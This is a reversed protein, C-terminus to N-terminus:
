SSKKFTQYFGELIMESMKEEEMIVELLLDYHAKLASQLKILANEECTDTCMIKTFHEVAYVRGNYSNVTIIPKIWNDHDTDIFQTNRLNKSM